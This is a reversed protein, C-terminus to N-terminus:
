LFLLHCFSPPIHRHRVIILFIINLVIQVYEVKERYFFNTHMHLLLIRKFALPSGCFRLTRRLCSCVMTVNRITTFHVQHYHIVVKNKHAREM